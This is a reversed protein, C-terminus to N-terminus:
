CPPLEHPKAFVDQFESLLNTVASVVVSAGVIGVKVEQAGIRSCLQMYDVQEWKHLTKVILRGNVM